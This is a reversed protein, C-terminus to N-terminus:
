AQRELRCCLGTTGLDCAGFRCLELVRVPGFLELVALTACTASVQVISYVMGQLTQCLWESCRLM